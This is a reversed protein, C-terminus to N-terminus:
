EGGRAGAGSFGASRSSAGDAYDSGARGDACIEGCAAKQRSGAGSDDDRGTDAATVAIAREGGSDNPAVCISSKRHGARADHYQGAPDLGGHSIRCQNAQRHADIAGTGRRRRGGAAREV